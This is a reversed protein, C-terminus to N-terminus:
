RWKKISINMGENETVPGITHIEAGEVQDGIVVPMATKNRLTIHKTTKEGYPSMGEGAGPQKYGVLIPISGTRNKKEKPQITVTHGSGHITALSHVNMESEAPLLTIDVDADEGEVFLLPGYRAEGECERLVAGSSVWFGRETGLASCNELYVGGRTRLEFGARMYKATCNIFTVNRAQTYTRFGDESLCKMYGPLVRNGGERNKYVSRFDVAHAPGATEALMDDTSRMAGEVYCDRFLHNNGGQIYFGHGYSRMFLRCGVLTSRNGKILVGSHKRHGIISGGGKGFLDGYGYPYSGQVWFLCDRLTNGEGAIELLAGAPSTKDGYNTIALGIITNNNGSIVFESTHIP